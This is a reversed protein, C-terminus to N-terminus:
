GVIAGMAKQKFLLTLLGPGIPMGGTLVEICGVTLFIAMPDNSGSEVELVSSLREPLHVGGYRLVAFVAAADTSGVISGLLLGELVPLKLIWASALGTITATVLVGVTALVMAPRWTLRLSTLPTSLGGDFLIVALALTGIAHAVGYNDFEIGGIGESGALMGLALFLVLVPVGIRASFKSSAIGMLLLVGTTLILTDVLFM